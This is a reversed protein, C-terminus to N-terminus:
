RGYIQVWRRLIAVELAVAQRAFRRVGPPMELGNDIRARAEPNASLIAFAYREGDRATIFGALGRVFNLTGTKARVEVGEMAPKKGTKDAVFYRRILGDFAGSRDSRALFDAVEAGTLRNRPDLGSHDWFEARSLGQERAWAAMMQAGGRLDAIPAGHRAQGAALGLVEATLNNSFHLMGRSVLPLERREHRAMERGSGQKRTPPPLTIGEQAALTRFVHAAYRGPERVPLWRGGKRSLAGTAVTWHERGQGGAYAFVPAERPSAAATIVRVRPSAGDARAELRLNTAGADWELFVRNFNLNLAGLGPNYSVHDPQGPQLERLRPLRSDDWHFGGRVSKVGAARLQGAMSALEASDLAPDGAGQLILDGQIVGDVLPGTALVRTVFRFDRGLTEIAYRATVLKLVSAPPLAQQATATELVEGTAVRMLAVSHQADLARAAILARLGDSGGVPRVSRRSRPREATGPGRAVAQASTAPAPTVIGQRPVPRDATDPARAMAPAPLLLAAILVLPLRAIM